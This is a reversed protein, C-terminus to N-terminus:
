RNRPIDGAEAKSMGDFIQMARDGEALIVAIQKALTEYADKANGQTSAREITKLTRLETIANLRKAAADDILNLLVSVDVSWLAFYVAIIDILGLGSVEGGLLEIMRLADSGKSEFNARSSEAQSLNKGVDDATNQFESVTFEAYSLASGDTNSGIEAQYKALLSM